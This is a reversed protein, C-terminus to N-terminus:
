GPRQRHEGLVLRTGVQQEADRPVDAARGVDVGLRAEPEDVSGGRHLRRWAPEDERSWEVASRQLPEDLLDIHLQRTDDSRNRLDLLEDLEPSAGVLADDPLADVLELADYGRGGSRAGIAFSVAVVEVEDVVPEDREGVLRM